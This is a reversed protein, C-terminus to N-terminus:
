IMKNVIERTRQKTEPNDHDFGNLLFPTALEAQSIRCLLCVIQFNLRITCM